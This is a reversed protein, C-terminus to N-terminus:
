KFSGDNALQKYMELMKPNRFEPPMLTWVKKYSEYAEAFQKLAYYANTEYRYVSQSEPTLKEAKQAYFLALKTDFEKNTNLYVHAMLRLNYPNDPAIELAKKARAISSTIGSNIGTADVYASVRWCFASKAGMGGMDVIDEVEIAARRGFERQQKEWAAKDKPKYGPDSAMFVSYCFASRLVPDQPTQKLKETYANVLSELLGYARSRAILLQHEDETTQSNATVNGIEEITVPKTEPDYPWNDARSSKTQLLPLSIMLLMVQLLSNKRVRM